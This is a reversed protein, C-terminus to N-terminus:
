VWMALIATSSISWLNMEKLLYRLCTLWATRLILHHALLTPLACYRTRRNIFVTSITNQHQNHRRGGDLLVALRCFEFKNETLTRNCMPWREYISPLIETDQTGVTPIPPNSASSPLWAPASVAVCHGATCCPQRPINSNTSHGLFHNRGYWSYLSVIPCSKALNRIQNRLLLFVVKMKYCAPLDCTLWHGQWEESLSQMKGTM